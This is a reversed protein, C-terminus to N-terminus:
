RSALSPRRIRRRVRPIKLDDRVMRRWVLPDYIALPHRADPQADAAPLETSSCPQAQAWVTPDFISLLGMVFGRSEIGIM